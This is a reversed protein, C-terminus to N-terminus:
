VEMLFEVLNKEHDLNLKKRLRYRSIEVSRVTINLLTAIEKSNMNLRLYACLKLDKPTLEPHVAKLKKFYNEHAENFSSEFLNWDYDTDMGEEIVKQLKKLQEPALKKGSADKLQLIEERIGNLLENKSVISLASNALERSKTALESELQENRLRVLKQENLLAERRLAEEKEQELRMEIRAKDKRLKIQYLYRFLYVLASGLLVYGLLAWYTAFWPPGVTFKFATVPSVAGDEVRARVLFRYEGQALNIFEKQTTSSWDSWRQSYGELYYQFQPKMQSFYPLAFSISLSNRKYPITLPFTAAETLLAKDEVSHQVKRILVQPMAKRRAFRLDANYVVFGEDISILYISNSIRSINEYYEVMHGSLMTFQNASVNVTGAKPMDVLAVQGHNIFWYQTGAAKIIRNSTAFPGLKKNLETYKSFSDSIADYIYFGADSTFVIRGDLRFTNIRYDAPLGQKQNYYQLSEVKKLDSSLSLKYLGKYAHSVWIHGNNDQEVYRSPEGFGEIKHSLVWNGQADKRYLVLGTYTGQILTEEESALKKIAWGGKYDSLKRLQNGVVQFTGENHGCLLQGGLLSLEWVQGQSGEIIKFDLSQYSQNKQAPWESYFLGQNTGLYINGGHILSSYVTGFKGTKDFYFYFPSDVEVRDVGNDLGAWLNQEQDAFLSLVTNNQLGSAKNIKHLVKGQKDLIIVGNLITGFALSNDKLLVGNNLQNTKLFDNADNAWPRIGAEDYLFLGNKATGILFSNGQLPLVSLVHADGLFASGPIFALQNNKLEYLGKGLVEVFYRNKAKLLFLLSQEGKVVQIKGKEYIYIGSFSQFLVRDKEVHIKWIEDKLGHEKPILNILSRYVFRGKDNYHWYGFEGFGGAYVKDESANAAVARVIVKNPMRYLQWHNGDFALLGESNGFYKVRNRGETISWNQNGSQYLLKSYNQVFPFSFNQTSEAQASTLSVAWFLM